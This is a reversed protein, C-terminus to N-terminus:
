IVFVLIGFLMIGAQFMDTLIVTKPWGMAYCACCQVLVNYM